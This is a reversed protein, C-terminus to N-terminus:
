LISLSSQFFYEFSYTPTSVIRTWQFTRNQFFPPFLTLFEATPGQRPCPVRFSSPPFFYILHGEPDNPFSFHVRVPHTLSLSFPNSPLPPSKTHVPPRIFGTNRGRPPNPSRFHPRPSLFVKCKRPASIATRYSPFWATSALSSRFFCV